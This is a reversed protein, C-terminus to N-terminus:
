YCANGESPAPTVATPDWSPYGSATLGKEAGQRWGSVSTHHAWLHSWKWTWGSNQPNWPTDATPRNLLWNLWRELIGKSDREGRGPLGVHGTKATLLLYLHTHIHTHTNCAQVFPNAQLTCQVACHSKSCHHGGTCWYWMLPTWLADASRHNRRWRGSASADAAPLVPSHPLRATLKTRRFHVHCRSHNVPQSTVLVLRRRVAVDGVGAAMRVVLLFASLGRLEPTVMSWRSLMLSSEVAPGPPYRWLCHRHRVTVLGTCAARRPFQLRELQLCSDRHRRHCQNQRDPPLYLRASCQM